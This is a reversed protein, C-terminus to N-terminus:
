AWYLSGGFLVPDTWRWLGYSFTAIGALYSGYLASPLFVCLKKDPWVQLAWGLPPLGLINCLSHALFPPIVSGTRLFLFSAYWGFLTTYVFQFTSQLVGRILAQKTRGGALYTEWAHHVHALGFWCPTLFVLQKKNYGGLASAAIVCSRFTLEETLPAAVYNRIGKWGEFKSEFVQWWGGKVRTWSSQWPLEGARWMIYWTGAFLSATLGLPFVVLRLADPASTPLALGLLKTTASLASRYSSLSNPVSPLALFPVFACSATSAISVAALRAKIVSPHNRDRPLEASHAPVSSAIDHPVPIPPQPPALNVRCSPLLYISGLYATTFATSALLTSSPSLLNM